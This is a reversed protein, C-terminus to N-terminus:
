SQTTAYLAVGSLLGLIFAPVITEKRRIHILVAAIMTFVLGIGALTSLWPLIGTVRPLILGIAGLVELSGIGQITSQSYDEVWKLQASMKEKPQTLKMIGAAFFVLAVLASVIWLIISM